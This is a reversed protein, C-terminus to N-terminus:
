TSDERKHSSVANTASRIRAILNATFHVTLNNTELFECQKLKYIEACFTGDRMLKLKANECNVRDLCCRMISFKGAFRVCKVVNRSKM